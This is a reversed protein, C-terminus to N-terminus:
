AERPPRKQPKPKRKLRRRFEKASVSNRLRDYISQMRLPSANLDFRAVLEVGPTESKSVSVNRRVMEPSLELATRAATQVVVDMARDNLNLGLAVNGVRPKLDFLDRAAKVCVDVIGPTMLAYGIRTTDSFIQVLGAADRERTARFTLKPGLGMLLRLDAQANATQTDVTVAVRAPLVFSLLILLLVGAAAVALWFM